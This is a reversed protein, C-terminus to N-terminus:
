REGGKGVVMVAFGVALGAFLFWQVAYSLHPGEDIPAAAQRRPFRPLASDPEQQVYVPLVEYPLRSRLARLDLRRWTTRGGHEIPEGGGSPLPLAIGRVTVEGPEELGRTNVTLADPAPLFGRDVLVASGDAGLRLPTVVHVGPVGELVDGRIIIERAHDYRGHAVVRHEALTDTGTSGPVLMVPPAGRRVVIVSNAARREHLRSLQWIGLRAFGAATLFLIAILLRRATSSMATHPPPRPPWTGPRGLKVIAPHFM